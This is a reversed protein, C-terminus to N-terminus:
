VDFEPFELQDVYSDQFEPMSALELFDIAPVMESALKWQAEDRLVRKAGEGAANGIAKIKPFLEEPILGIDCASRPSLFSGFAGALWVEEIDDYTIGQRVALLEIGTAIAAKALQLERIDKQEITVPGDISTQDEPVLVISPGDEMEGTEDILGSRLMQAVTDLLGSGCIGRAPADGITSLKWEGDEYKASSIAGEAGRMGHTIGAGEFAPGAATSCTVLDHDKGLVMEGNTGIDILLTWVKQEALDTSILCGVTDAGVFGAINPVMLLVGDEHIKIDYEKAKLVLGDSITPTYPSHVLSNVNLGLFLHNMCTNGVISVACIEEVTINKKVAMEQLLENICARICATVDEGGHELVYSSRNIVDAGYQTQPNMRSAVTMEKGTTGNLLYGAVTTTGIDFAAMYVPQKESAIEIIHNDYYTVWVQNSFKILSGVKSAVRMNMEVSAVGTAEKFSDAFRTWDAISKGFPCAPVEICIQKLGPNFNTAVEKGTTLIQETGKKQMTDVEMDQDPKTECAKVIRENAGLIKVLCKGCKGNGGCPADPQIGAKIMLDLLNQNEEAQIEINEKVFKVTYM